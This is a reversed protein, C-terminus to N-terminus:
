FVVSLHLTLLSTHAGLAHHRIDCYIVMRFGVCFAWFNGIIDRRHEAQCTKPRLLQPKRRLRTSDQPVRSPLPNYTYVKKDNIINFDIYCYVVANMASVNSSQLTANQSSIVKPTRTIKKNITM